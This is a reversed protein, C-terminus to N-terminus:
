IHILSLYDVMYVDAGGTDVFNILFGKDVTGGKAPVMLKDFGKIDDHVYRDYIRAGCICLSALILISACIAIISRSNM